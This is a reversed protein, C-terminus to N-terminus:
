LAVLDDLFREGVDARRDHSAVHEAAMRARPIRRLRPVAPPSLIRRKMVGYENEGMVSALRELQLAARRKGEDAFADLRRELLRPAGRAALVDREGAARLGCLLVQAGAQDVLHLQVDRRRQEAAALPQEVAHAVIQVSER